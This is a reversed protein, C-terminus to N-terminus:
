FSRWPQRRTARFWALPHCPGSCDCRPCRARERSLQEPPWDWPRAPPQVIWWSCTFHSTYARARERLLTNIHARARTFTTTFPSYNGSTVKYICDNTTYLSQITYHSYELCEPGRKALIESFHLILGQNQRCRAWSQTQVEKKLEVICFSMGLLSVKESQHAPCGLLLRVLEYVVHILIQNKWVPKWELHLSVTEDKVFSTVNM